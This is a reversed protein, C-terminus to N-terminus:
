WGAQNRRSRADIFEPGFRQGANKMHDAERDRCFKARTASIERSSSHWSGSLVPLVLPRVRVSLSGGSCCACVYVWLVCVCVCVCVWLSLSGESQAHCSSVGSCCVRVCVCVCVCVCVPLCLSGEVPCSLQVSLKLSQWSVLGDDRGDYTDNYDDYDDDDGDGQLPSGSDLGRM